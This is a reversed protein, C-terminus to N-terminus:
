RGRNRPIVPREHAPPPGIPPEQPGQKGAKLLRLQEDETIQSANYVPVIGLMALVQGAAVTSFMRNLEPEIEKLALPHLFLIPAELNERAKHIDAALAWRILNENSTRDRGGMQSPLPPAFACSILIDGLRMPIGEQVLVQTEEESGELKKKAFQPPASYLPTEGDLQYLIKNVNIEIMDAM